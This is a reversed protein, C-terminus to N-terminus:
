PVMDRSCGLFLVILVIYTRRGNGDFQIRCFYFRHGNRRIGDSMTIKGKQTHSLNVSIHLLYDYHRIKGILIQM